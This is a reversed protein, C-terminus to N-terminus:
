SRLFRCTPGITSTRHLGCAFPRHRDVIVAKSLDGNLWGIGMITRVSRWQRDTVLQWEETEMSVLMLQMRPRMDDFVAICKAKLRVVGDALLRHWRCVMGLGLKPTM